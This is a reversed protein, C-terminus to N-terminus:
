KIKVSINQVTEVHVGDIVEDNLLIEGDDTVEVNKKFENKDFKKTVVTKVLSPQITELQSLILAEDSYIWDKGSRKSVNGFLTDLKFSPDEELKSKFYKLISEEGETFKKKCVELEKKLTEEYQKLTAMIIFASDTTEEDIIEVFEIKSLEM